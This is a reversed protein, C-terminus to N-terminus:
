GQHTIHPAPHPASPAATGSTGGWGGGMEESIPSWVDRVSQQWAVPPTALLGTALLHAPVGRADGKGLMWGAAQHAPPQRCLLSPEWWQRAKNDRHPRWGQSGWQRAGSPQPHPVMRPVGLAQGQQAPPPAGDRPGGTGSGQATGLPPPPVCARPDGLAWRAVLGPGGWYGARTHALAPPDPM